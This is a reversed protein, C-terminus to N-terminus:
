ATLKESELDANKSPRLLKLLRGAGRKLEWVLPSARGADRVLCSRLESALRSESASRGKELSMHGEAASEWADLAEPSPDV